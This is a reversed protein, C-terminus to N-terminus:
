DERVADSGSGTCTPCLMDGCVCLTCLVAKCARCQFPAGQAGCFDCYAQETYVRGENVKRRAEQDKRDNDDWYVGEMKTAM